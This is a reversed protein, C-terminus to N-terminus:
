AIQSGKNIFRNITSLYDKDLTAYRWIVIDIISKKEKAFISIDNCLENPCNFGLCNSVRILHRDPKAVNIGINKALHYSTAKGLYPFTQIFNIQGIEIERKIYAFSHSYIYEAVYLIANIKGPHNFIKIAKKYCINRNMQILESSTFDYMVDKILPFKNRVVKDNMGSALIVWAIEHLFKSEDVKNFNIEDQWDIEEGYGKKIVYQKAFFYAHCIKELHEM